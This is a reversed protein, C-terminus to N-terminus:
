APAVHAVGGLDLAGHLGESLRRIAVQDHSPAGQYCGMAISNNPKRGFQRSDVVFASKNGGAAEQGVTGIQSVLVV